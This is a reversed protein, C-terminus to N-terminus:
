ARFGFSPAGCSVTCASTNSHSVPVLRSNSRTIRSGGESAREVLADIPEHVLAPLHPDGAAVYPPNSVIADFHGAVPAFWDGELLRVPLEGVAEAAGRGLGLKQLTGHMWSM